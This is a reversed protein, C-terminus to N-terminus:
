FDMMGDAIRMNQEYILSSSKMPDVRDRIRKIRKRQAPTFPQGTTPDSWYKENYDTLGFVEKLYNHLEIVDYCVCYDLVRLHIVRNPESAKIALLRDGHLNEPKLVDRPVPPGQYVVDSLDRCECHLYNQYDRIGSLARDRGISERRRRIGQELEQDTIAMVQERRKQREYDVYRRHRDEAIGRMAPPPKNQLQYQKQYEARYSDLIREREQPKLKPLKEQSELASLRLVYELEQEQNRFEPIASAPGASGSQNILSLYKEKAKLYKLKYEQTM